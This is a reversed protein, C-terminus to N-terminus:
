DDTGAFIQVDPNEPQKTYPTPHQAVPLLPLEFTVPPSTLAQMYAVLDAKEQETLNLPKMNPSLDPTVVGGTVYHDVVEELTNASGDHFYPATLAIDRLTPTKFAGKLVKIPVHAFRGMDPSDANYSALGLNHFGDDTFNPAQHCVACNGKDPDLFVKFGRVQQRTMASADGKVWRDFPSDNSIVTREFSAIARALTKETIGEGPYANDFARAYGPTAKLWNIIANLDGNMEVAALIPGLAQAELTRARGDWMQIRNYATNIVTPSARGLVKGQFGVGTPLGDAWGLVPNHCTACSISGDRSLRPDFFLMKGLAVRETTPTNKKPSKPTDPLLWEQIEPHGPILHSSQFATLLLTTSILGILLLLKSRLKSLLVWDM